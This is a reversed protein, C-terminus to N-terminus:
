AHNGGGSLGQGDAGAGDMALQGPGNAERWQAPTLGTMRKFARHFNGVSEYGISDAVLKLPVNGLQILRQSEQLRMTDHIQQFSLGADALQRRLSREAMGMSAAVQAIGAGKFGLSRIVQRVTEAVSHRGAAAALEANAAARAISYATAVSDPRQRDLTTARFVIRCADQRFALAQGFLDGYRAVYLPQDFDFAVSLLDEETVGYIRLLLLLGGMIQEARFRRTPATGGIPRFQISCVGANVSFSVERHDQILRYFHGLDDLITRITPAHLALMALTGHSMQAYSAAVVLGFGEDGSLAQCADMLADLEAAPRWPRTKVDEALAVGFQRAAASSDFGEQSLAQTLVLLQQAAIESM